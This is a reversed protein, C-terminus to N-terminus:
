GRAPAARRRWHRRRTRRAPPPRRARRAPPPVPRPAPPRAPAAPRPAPAAPRCGPTAIRRRRPLAHWAPHATGRAPPAPSRPPVSRSWRPRDNRRGSPPATRRGRCSGPARGRPPIRWRRWRAVPPTRCCRGAPPAAPTRRGAARASTRPAAPGASPPAPPWGRRRGPPGPGAPRRCRPPASRRGAGPRRLTAAPRPPQRPSSVSGSRTCPTRPASPVVCRRRARHAPLGAPTRVPLRYRRAPRATSRRHPSRIAQSAM